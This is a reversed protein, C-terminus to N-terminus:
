GEVHAALQVFAGYEASIKLGTVEMQVTATGVQVLDDGTNLMVPVQVPVTTVEERAM